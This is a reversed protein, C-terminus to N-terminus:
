QVIPNSFRVAIIKPPSTSRIAKWFKEPISSFLAEPANNCSHRQSEGCQSKLRDMVYAPEHGTREVGPSLLFYIGAGRTDTHKFIYQSLITQNRCVKRLFLWTAHEALCRLLAKCLLEPTSTRAKQHCSAMEGRNRFLCECAAHVRSPCNDNGDAPTTSIGEVWSCMAPEGQLYGYCASM